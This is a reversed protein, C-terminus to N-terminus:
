RPLLGARPPPKVVAGIAKGLLAQLRERRPPSLTRVGRSFLGLVRADEAVLLDRGATMRGYAVVRERDIPRLAGLVAAKLGRLEQAEEPTLASSGREAALYAQRFVEPPDPAAYRSNSIVLQITEPTLHPLRDVAAQVEPPLPPAPPPAPLTPPTATRDARSPGFLGMWTSRTSVVVLALAAV